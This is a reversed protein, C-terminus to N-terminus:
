WYEFFLVISQYHFFYSVLLFSSLVLIPPHIEAKVLYAAADAVTSEGSSNGATHVAAWMHHRKLKVITQKKIKYTKIKQNILTFLNNILTHNHTTTGIWKNTFIKLFNIHWVSIPPHLTPTKCGSRISNIRKSYSNRKLWFADRQFLNKLSHSFPRVFLEGIM